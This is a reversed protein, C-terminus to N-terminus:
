PLAHRYDWHEPLPLQFIALLELDAPDVYCAAPWSPGRLSVSDFCFLPAFVLGFWFLVRTTRLSLSSPQEGLHKEAFAATVLSLRDSRATKGKGDWARTNHASM